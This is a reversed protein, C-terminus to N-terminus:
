ETRTLASSVVQQLEQVTFPKEVLGYIYPHDDRHEELDVAFGSVIVVPVEPHSRHLERLTDLGNQGPMRLDLLVLEIHPHLTMLHMGEYGTEAEYVKGALGRLARVAVVRTMEDDDIVLIAPGKLEEPQQSGGGVQIEDLKALEQLGNPVFMGNTEMFRVLDGPRILNTRGPTQYASLKGQKVWMFVTNRSVGCFRAAEPVTLFKPEPIHATSM